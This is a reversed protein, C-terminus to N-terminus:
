RKDEDAHRAVTCPVHGRKCRIQEPIAVLPVETAIAIGGFQKCILLSGARHLGALAARM